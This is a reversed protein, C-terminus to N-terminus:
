KNKNRRPPQTNQEMCLVVFASFWKCNNQMTCKTPTQLYKSTTCLFRDDERLVTIAWRAKLIFNTLQRVASELISISTSDYEPNSDEQNSHHWNSTAHEASV